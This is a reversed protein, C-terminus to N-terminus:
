PVFTVTTEGLWDFEFDANPNACEDTMGWELAYHCPFIWIRDFTHVGTMGEPFNFVYGRTLNVKGQEDFWAGHVTYTPKIVVGDVKLEMFWQGPQDSPFVDWGGETYFPQNAPFYIEGGLIPIKEGTPEHERALAPTVVLLALVICILIASKKM